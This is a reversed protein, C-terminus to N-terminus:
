PKTKKTKNNENTTLKKCAELPFIDMAIALFAHTLLKTQKHTISFMLQALDHTTSTTIANFSPKRLQCPFTLYFPSYLLLTAHEEKYSIKTKNVSSPQDNIFEM